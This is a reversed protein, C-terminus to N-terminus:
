VVTENNCVQNNQRASDDAAEYTVHESLTAVCM